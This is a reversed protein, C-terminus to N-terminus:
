PQQLRPQSPDHAGLSSAVVHWSGGSSQLGAAVRNCVDAAPACWGAERMMACLQAATHWASAQVVVDLATDLVVSRYSVALDLEQSAATIATVAADADRSVMVVFLERLADGTAQKEVANKLLQSVLAADGAAIAERLLALRARDVSATVASGRQLLADLDDTLAFFISQEDILASCNVSLIGLSWPWGSWTLMMAANGSKAAASVLQATQLVVFRRAAPTFIVDADTQPAYLLLPVAFHRLAKIAAAVGAADGAAARAALAQNLKLRSANRASAMDAASGDLFPMATHWVTVRLHDSIRLRRLHSLARLLDDGDQLMHVPVLLGASVLSSTAGANYRELGDLVRLAARVAVPLPPPQSLSRTRRVSLDSADNVLSDVSPQGSGLSKVNFAVNHYVDKLAEADCRGAAFATEVCQLLRGFASIDSFKLAQLALDAYSNGTVRAHKGM